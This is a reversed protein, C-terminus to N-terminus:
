NITVSTWHKTSRGSADNVLEYAAEKGSPDSVCTPAEPHAQLTGSPSANAMAGIGALDITGGTNAKSPFADYLGLLIADVETQDLGMQRVFNAVYTQGAYHTRSITTTPNNFVVVNSSTPKINKTHDSNYTYTGAQSFYIYFTISPTMAKFHDSNIEYTGAQTFNLYFALSPTMLKLDDSKITYTGTKTFQLFLVGSPTMAKLHDTNITYTGEITYNLYLQYSLNLHNIDSTNFVSGIGSSKTIYINVLNAGCLKLQNSNFTIKDDRLDIATFEKPNTIKVTYTGAGAYAHTKTSANNADTYSNSSGDGWDITCSKGTALDIRQLTLTAAGTTTCTFTFKPAGFRHRINIGIGLM